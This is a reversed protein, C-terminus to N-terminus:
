VPADNGGLENNKMAARDGLRTLLSPVWRSAADWGKRAKRGGHAPPEPLLKAAVGSIAAVLGPAMADAIVAAQAQLSIVLEADRRRLARVIQGAAREAAM